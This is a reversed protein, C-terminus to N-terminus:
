DMLSAYVVGFCSPLLDTERSRPKASVCLVVDADSIWCGAKLPSWGLRRQVRTWSTWLSVFPRWGLRLVDPVFGGNRVSALGILRPYATRLDIWLQPVPPSHMRDREPPRGEVAYEALAARRCRCPGSRSPPRSRHRPRDHHQCHAACGLLRMRRCATRRLGRDSPPVFDPQVTGAVTFSIQRTM